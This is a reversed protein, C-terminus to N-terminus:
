LLGPESFTPGSCVMKCCLLYFDLARPDPGSEETYICVRVRGKRVAPKGKHLLPVVAKERDGQTTLCEACPALLSSILQMQSLAHGHLPLYGQDYGMPVITNREPSWKLFSLSSRSCPWLLTGLTTIAGSVMGYMSKSNNNQWNLQIQSKM